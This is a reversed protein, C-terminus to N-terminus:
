SFKCHWSMTTIFVMIHEYSVISVNLCGSDSHVLKLKELRQVEESWVQPEPRAQPQVLENFPCYCKNTGKRQCLNEEFLYFALFTNIFSLIFLLLMANCQWYFITTLFSSSILIQRVIKQWMRAIETLWGIVPKWEPRQGIVAGTTVCPRSTMAPTLINM